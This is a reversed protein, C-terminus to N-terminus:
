FTAVLRMNVCKEVTWESSEFENIFKDFLDIALITKEFNTISEPNSPDLRYPTDLLQSLKGPWFYRLADSIKSRLLLGFDLNIKCKEGKLEQRVMRIGARLTEKDFRGNELEINAEIKHKYTKTGTQYSPKFNNLYEQQHTTIPQELPNPSSSSAGAVDHENIM